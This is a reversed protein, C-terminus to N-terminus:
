IYSQPSRHIIGLKIFEKIYKKTKKDFLNLNHVFLILTPKNISLSELHRHRLIYSYSIKCFKIEEIM